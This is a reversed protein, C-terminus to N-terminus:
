DAKENLMPMTTGSPLEEAIAQTRWAIEVIERIRDVLPKVNNGFKGFVVGADGIFGWMIDINSMKKHLEKQLKELKSLLRSKHNDSFLTSENILDRLENILAQIRILDGDTFRYAFSNKFHTKYKNRASDLVGLKERGDLLKHFNIVFSNILEFDNIRNIGSIQPILHVGIDNLYSFQEIGAYAEICDKYYVDNLVQSKAGNICDRFLECMKKGAEITDSPLSDMFEDTFIM